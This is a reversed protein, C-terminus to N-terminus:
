PAPQPSPAPPPEPPKMGPQPGAPPQPPQASQVSGGPAATAPQILINGYSDKPLAKLDIPQDDLWARLSGARPTRLGFSRDAEWIMSGGAPLNGEFLLKRDVRLRVWAVETAELRLRHKGVDSPAPKASVPAVVTERRLPRSPEPITRNAFWVIGGALVLVVFLGTPILLAPAMKPLPIRLRAPAPKLTPEPAKAPPHIQRWLSDFDLELYECYSQFAGRYYVPAPFEDSRNDELALIQRVPLRLARGAEEPRLGKKERAARLV